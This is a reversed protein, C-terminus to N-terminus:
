QWEETVLYLFNPEGVPSLIDLLSLETLITLLGLSQVVLSRNGTTATTKKKVV